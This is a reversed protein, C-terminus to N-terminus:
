KAPKKKPPKDGIKETYERRILQRVVDSSSLGTSEALATLMSLETPSIRLTFRQDHPEPSM